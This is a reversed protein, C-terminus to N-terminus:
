LISRTKNLFFILTLLPFPVSDNTYYTSGVATDGQGEGSRGKGHVQWEDGVSGGVVLQRLVLHEGSCDPRIVVEGPGDGVEDFM